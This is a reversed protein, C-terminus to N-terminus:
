FGFYFFTETLCYDVVPVTVGMMLSGANSPGDSIMEEDSQPVSVPPIHDRQLKMGALGADRM